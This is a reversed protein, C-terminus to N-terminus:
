LIAAVLAGAAFAVIISGAWILCADLPGREKFLVMVSALCPVFLTMVTLAVLTQPQTLSGGTVMSYLGAAGLDRKIVSMLFLAATEEPLGLLGTTLPALWQRLLPFGNFYNLLSILLGGLLFMPGADTLFHKSKRATKKILNGAQPLRLPPLSLFLDTSRGPLVQNLLLGLLTFIALIILAYLLLYVPQLSFAVALIIAFQASCPVALCLLAAAIQRERRSGLIRTSVLAMTVCGFGLLIPIVAKGNLGFRSFSRDALVAIRPLLGSDEMLSMVLYFGVVLPFLLGFLYIPVMTLLGYEGILLCHLFGDPPLHPSLLGTIWNFYWRGMVVGETFGAVTQTLVKGIFFFVALLLLLLLPLGTLPTLLLKDLRAAFSSSQRPYALHRQCLRDASRRWLRYCDEREAADPCFPPAPGGCAAASGGPHTRFAARLQAPSQRLYAKVLHLGRSERFAAPIVRVGLDKELGPLDIKVGAKEAEDMMNLAVLLPKGLDLLQCTLFLDRELHTADVVNLILDADELAVKTVREEDNFTSVGYVGPTDIVQWDGYRGTALEVTTGPFNSVDAYTGTLAGFLVSKGVNPNGVLVLKRKTTKM